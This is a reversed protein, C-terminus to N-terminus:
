RLRQVQENVIKIAESLEIEGNIYRVSLAEDEPITKFGSLSVSARAFNFAKQRKISECWAAYMTATNPNALWKQQVDVHLASWWEVCNIPPDLDLSQRAEKSTQTLNEASPEAESTKYSVFFRSVVEQVDKDIVPASSMGTKM